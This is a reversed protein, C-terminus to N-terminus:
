QNETINVPLIVSYPDNLWMHHGIELSLAHKALNHEEFNSARFEHIFSCSLFSTTRSKVENIIAAYKGKTGSM